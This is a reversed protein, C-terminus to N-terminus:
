IYARRLRRACYGERRAMREVQLYDVFPFFAGHGAREEEGGQMQERCGVSPAREAVLRHGEDRLVEYAVVGLGPGLVDEVVGRRAVEGADGGPGVAVPVGGLTGERGLIMVDIGIIIRRVRAVDLQLAIARIAPANNASNRIIHTLLLNSAPFSTMRQFSQHQNTALGGTNLGGTHGGCLLLLRQLPDYVYTEM